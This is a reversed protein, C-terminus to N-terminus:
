RAPGSRWARPSVGVIRLFYRNFFSLNNYGVAQSIDIISLDSTKLLACARKVRQRNIFEFLPCGAREKFRRSFDTVNMACKGVFWELCFTDTYNAEIHRIADDITWVGDPAQWAGASSKRREGLRAALVVLEVAWAGALAEAGPHGGALEGAIRGAVEALRAVTDADLGSWFAADALLTEAAACDVHGAVLSDQGRPELRVIRRSDAGDRGRLRCACFRASSGGAAESTSGSRSSSIGYLRDGIGLVFDAYARGTTM